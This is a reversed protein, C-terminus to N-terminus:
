DMRATTPRHGMAIHRPVGMVWEVEAPRHQYIGYRFADAAHSSWDHLPRQSLAKLKDNWERRYNRLAEIGRSCRDRDFWCRPLAARVANVGDEVAHAKAVTGRIGLQALFAYRSQGTSLERVQVDHPLVHAGYVYDRARLEKAYHDLGMGSNEYYDILRIERGIVQAFWIATADDVGLDWWTQVPVNPEWAVHGIRGQAEAQEILRGYFAGVVAADFSCEFEQRYQDESMVARAANLEEAPVIGTDSARLMLSFWEAPKATAEDWIQAFHNRGKPTGIFCAWGKRDALAPRIVEVWARPDMDGFEDLIVGDLYIGRLREYNDAGYLRVRAGNQFDVRLEQEHITVGPVLGAYQRVYTWAVDKAQAFYPAIYAFRANPKDSRLAADILDMVCAVTKGARRHAVIVSWRQVRRHFPEFQPRAEYGLDIVNADSM